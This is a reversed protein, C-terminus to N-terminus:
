KEGGKLLDAPNLRSCIGRRIIIFGKEDEGIIFGTGRKTKVKDGVRLHHFGAAGSAGTVEQPAARWEHQRNVNAHPKASATIKGNIKGLAPFAIVQGRNADDNGLQIKM